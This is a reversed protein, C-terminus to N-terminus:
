ARKQREAHWSLRYYPAPGATSDVQLSTRCVTRRQRRHSELSSSDARPRYADSQIQADFPHCSRFLGGGNKGAAFPSRNQPVAPHETYELPESMFTLPGKERITVWGAGDNYPTLHPDGNEELLLIVDFRDAQYGNTTNTYTLSM